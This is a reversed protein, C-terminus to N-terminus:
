GLKKICEKFAKKYNRGIPLTFSEVIITSTKTNVHKIRSKNVIFSKHIPMFLDSPLAKQLSSLSRKITFQKNEIQITCYNRSSEIWYIDEARVIEKKTGMQIYFQSDIDKIYENVRTKDKLLHYICAQLTLKHFPKVLFASNPISLATRFYHESSHQTTFIIPLGSALHALELGNLPGNIQIDVLLIDPQEDDIKQKVLSAESLVGVVEYGGLEELMQTLNLAHILEDEIILVKIPIM